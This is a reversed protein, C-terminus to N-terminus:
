IKYDGDMFQRVGIMILGVIVSSEFGFLIYVGVIPISIVITALSILLFRM